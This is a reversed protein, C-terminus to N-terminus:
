EGEGKESRCDSQRGGRDQLRRVLDLFDAGLIWRERGILPMALGLARLQRLGHEKLGTARGFARLSYATDARIIGAPAPKDGRSRTAPERM